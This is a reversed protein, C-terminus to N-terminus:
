KPNGDHNTQEELNSLKTMTMKSCHIQMPGNWSTELFFWCDSDKSEKKADYSFSDIRCGIYESDADKQIQQLYSQVKEYNRIGALRLEIRLKDPYFIPYLDIVLAAERRPGTSVSVIVSDHLQYAIDPKPM